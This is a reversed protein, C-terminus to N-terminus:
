DWNRVMIYPHAVETVLQALDARDVILLGGLHQSLKITLWSYFVPALWTIEALIATSIEDAATFGHIKAM